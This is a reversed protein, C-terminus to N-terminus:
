RCINGTPCNTVGDAYFDYRFGATFFLETNDERVDLQSTQTWNAGVEVELSLDRTWYYDVLVSPLVTYETLDIGNGVRYGLRLRPGVRLADSIPYRSNFDLVYFDSDEGDALRLGVIYMDNKEFMDNAILQAAYYTETGSGPLAAVGGSAITGTTESVTIDASAQLHETLPRSYGLSAARYTATRDIALQDAEDISHAKLLDYLTVFPQGQIATWASLYPSKRYELGGHVTSKDSFTYTGSAIAANFEGFHVDYDVTAFSAISPTLYRVEFGVAQRDIWDGDRQEIGFLSLDLGGLFPGFDVSAGYFYKDDKFFQDKRRAVPSGGVLNLGLWPQAQWSLLAGDFRGLVGGTNRTQRGVRAVTDWDRFTADLFLAAVSYIEDEEGSFDHEESGSFRFKWKSADNSWTGILDFSSLLENQHVVHDDANTNFDPPLSPDHLARFSDDRIYFQSASGSLTWVSPGEGGSRIRGYPKEGGTEKATTAPAEGKATLVGALRQRVRDAGEGQPYRTLYDEYEAQAEALNGSRQRALGILEQAEASHENEPLKLVKSLLRIAENLKKKKIAARAEDMSAAASRRQDETLTGTGRAKSRPPLAAQVTPARNRGSYERRVQTSWGGASEPFIPRCSKSKKAGSIAIIVSEFDAGQAVQFRVTRRFQIVLAPGGAPDIDLEIAKIAATKSEPARLSERRTLFDAAAVGPDIARVMIRLENGQALPFHSAYRVRYNFSIKLLTCETGALVQASALARDTVPESRAETACLLALVTLGARCSSALIERTIQKAGIM